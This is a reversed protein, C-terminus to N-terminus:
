FMQPEPEAEEGVEEEEEEDFLVKVAPVLAPLHPLDTLRVTMLDFAIAVHHVFNEDIVPVKPYRQSFHTLLTRYVGAAAGAEVAEKTTCHKKGIAEELMSDDFTAEHILMTADKAAKVLADCPRTDGSFVIKFPVADDSEIVLGFSHACHVVRVSELKSLGFSKKAEEIAAQVDVPVAPENDENMTGAAATANAEETTHAAEVFRFRMPELAAYSGLARRLPRPGIVLVPPCEPGLLRTRAALLAPLGVHHDAHIHSIWVLSLRRLIDQAGQVGFRRHLQGLSGEGCDALMSAGKGGNHSPRDYLLGTVNRYKSPIAAGTGLFTVAFTDDRAQSVAAPVDTETTAPSKKIQFAREAELLAQPKEKKLEARIAEADLVDDCEESNFGRKAVPRLYYRLMNTGVVSNAPLAHAKEAAAAPAPAPTSSSDAEPPLSFVDSDLANLKVQLAASKKMIPIKSGESEAVLIHQPGEGFSKIFAKYAPLHLVARPTLHVICAVKGGAEADAAWKGVGNEADALASIFGESPCDLILVVPGPTAAEMVDEPRVLKGNVATVEQGRALQGYLPGRPVGLSAAKHPLFKGPIDPLECVYCAAASETATSPIDMGAQPLSMGPAADDIKQRKATHQEGNAGSDNSDRGGSKDQATRIIIPTISVADNKVVPRSIIGVAGAGERRGFEMVKLGMDRVNVFTRFANVLTHLGPPGHITMGVHGTLLGGATTDAMTLLMGPLGGTAETTVRTTLVNNIKALKVRHEVCFRQFGEGVNFLYRQRDFFLLASPVACGTDSGVGLVQVYCSTNIAGIDKDKGM